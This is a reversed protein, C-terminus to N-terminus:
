KTCDILTKMAEPNNAMNEMVVQLESIPAVNTILQNFPVNESAALAIAEEYDQAEYVRAGFLRLERWFFKFLDVNPAQSYIGVVVIRGRTRPLKTMTEAGIMTGTVEFVADAGAGDTKEEVYKALDIKRPDVTDIGLERALGLRYDNIESIVVKAGKSKAVLAVLMGIPGGGIVVVYEGSKVGGMRVDHCAVAIPEILAGYQLSVNDPLKHLTHAPVTWYAQLAGQTDIGMFNLHHCIHSHGARCAPCDGCPDLPRVVVRDGATFGEVGEGVQVVEGSCEHGMIQPMKVRKDMKGHFIHLDTGCIGCYAIKIKVEGNKPAEPKCEGINITQNGVYFAAKM